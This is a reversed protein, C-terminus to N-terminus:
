ECYTYLYRTRVNLGKTSAACVDTSSMRCQHDPYCAPEFGAPFGRVKAHTEGNRPLGYQHLKAADFEVEKIGSWQCASYFRILSASMDQALSKM